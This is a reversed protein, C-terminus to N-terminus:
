TTGLDLHILYGSNWFGSGIGFAATLGESPEWRMPNVKDRMGSEAALGLNGKIAVPRPFNTAKLRLSIIGCHCESNKLAHRDQHLTQVAGHGM